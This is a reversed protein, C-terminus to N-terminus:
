LWVKACWISTGSFLVATLIVKAIETSGNCCLGALVLALIYVGLVGVHMKRRFAESFPAHVNEIPALKVFSYSALLAGCWLISIPLPVIVYLAGLYCVLMLLWCRFHTQCHYGGGFSQLPIFIGWFCVTQLGTGLLVGLVLFSAVSVISSLLLDLGYIMVARQKKDIVGYSLMMGVWANVIKKM